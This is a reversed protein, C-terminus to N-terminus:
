EEEESRGALMAALTADKVKVSRDGTILTLEDGQVAVVMPEGNSAQAPAPGKESQPSAFPLKDMLAAAGAAVAAVGASYKLFDRRSLKSKEKNSESNETM